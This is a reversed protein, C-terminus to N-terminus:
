EGVVGEIQVPMFGKGNSKLLGAEVCITCLHTLNKAGVRDRALLLTNKVTFPSLFKVEGITKYDHGSAFLALLELQRPTLVTEPDVPVINIAVAANADASM